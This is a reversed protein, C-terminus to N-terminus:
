GLDPPPYDPARDEEPVEDYVTISRADDFLGSEELTPVDDDFTYRKGGLAYRYMGKGQNGVEDPGEADPDFWILTGDDVGGLDIDEFFGHEGRSIQPETPGGGSPPYRYLADRFSEPSLDPGALHIGTFITRLPPELVNAANHPPLVGYAWKYIRFANDDELAGRAGVGSIGFGHSWQEMDTLRAFVTTDALLSPGLIWEPHYDQATAEKTLLGPTLPDGYYIVTTVGAAKLKSINTRANEQGQALDLTFEVDTALDIGNDALADRFREFVPQHDGNPTDYHVLGYVRDQNRMDEDGALVAKGPGALSGILASAGDVAQEPTELAQWLYPENEKVIDEPLAEACTPGCVIQHSALEAAFTPSARRPGGIVAFPHKEAIAIADARAAEIDDDAGTGTFVEVKVTRGYTEFMHNYLDTFGQITDAEASPDIDVGAGAVMATTLPDMAPDSRYYVVKIEDGTVGQFTAGGNDGEFPQVCPPAYVSPLKIRGLETDCNPGFDVEQGLLDAKAPTMPGSRTLEDQSAAEVGGSSPQDSDDDGGGRGGFVLVAGAILVVVAAIPGYRRVAKLWAPRSGPPKGGPLGGQERTDQTTSM